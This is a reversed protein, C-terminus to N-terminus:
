IFCVLTFYKEIYMAYVGWLYAKVNYFEKVNYIEKTKKLADPCRKTKVIRSVRIYYNEVRNFLCNTVYKHVRFLLM